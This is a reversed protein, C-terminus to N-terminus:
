DLNHIAQEYGKGAVELAHELASRASEPAKELAEELAKSNEAARQELVGRLEARRGPKEEGEAFKKGAQPGADERPGPGRPAAMVPAEEAAPAPAKVAPPPAEETPAAAMEPEPALAPEPVPAEEAMMLMPEEPAPAVQAVPVTEPRGPIDLSAMAILQDNMRETAKEVQEVKGKEAMAVIEAVREDAFKAYLEAKGMASPTFTLRVSETALKVPYLTEDPLSDSAAMVTGSGAILLALVVAVVAVLRPQWGFFFGAKKQPEMLRIAAQFEYGARDRFEPRPKIDVAGRADSAMLLLPELEDARDPYAALCDEVTAGKFIRELCEDLINDFEKERNM